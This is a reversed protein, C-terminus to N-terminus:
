DSAFHNIQLWPSKYRHWADCARRGHPQFDSLFPCDACNSRNCTMIGLVTLRFVFLELITSVTSIEGFDPLGFM